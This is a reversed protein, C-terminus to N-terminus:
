QNIFTKLKKVITKAMNKNIQINQKSNESRDQDGAKYTRIQFLSSDFCYDASVSSRKQPTGDCLHLDTIIAM